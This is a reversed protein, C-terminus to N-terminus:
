YIINICFLSHSLYLSIIGSPAKTWHKGSIKGADNDEDEDSFTPEDFKDMEALSQGYHTLEEDENLNFRNTSHLRQFLFALMVPM